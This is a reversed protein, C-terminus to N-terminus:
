ISMSIEDFHAMMAKEAGDADRLTIRQAITEHFGQVVEMQERTLRKRLGKQISDKIAERISEILHVMLSNHSMQALVLHFQVDLEAFLDENSLNERMTKTTKQLLNLEEKTGREVALRVGQLELAKRIEMFEHISTELQLSRQFYSYLPESTIPKITAKKGNAVEIIGKAELTKFAERIVPRSIGFNEALAGISPLPAEPKLKEQDIYQLLQQSAQEVLTLPKLKKLM